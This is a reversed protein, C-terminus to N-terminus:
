GAREKGKCSSCTAYEANHPCLSYLYMDSARDSVYSNPAFHEGLGATAIYEAFGATSAYAQNCLSQCIVYEHDDDEAEAEQAAAQQGELTDLIEQDIEDGFSTNDYYGHAMLHNYATNAYKVTNTNNIGIGFPDKWVEYDSSGGEDDEVDADDVPSGIRDALPTSRMRKSARTDEIESDEAYEEEDSEVEEITASPLVSAVRELIRLAEPTGKVGIRDALRSAAGMTPHFTSPSAKHLPGARVSKLSYPPTTDEPELERPPSMDIRAMSALFHSSETAERAGQNGGRGRGRGRGRRRVRGHHNNDGRADSDNSSSPQQQRQQQQRHGGRQNRFQPTGRNRHVATVRNSAEQRPAGFEAQYANLARVKIDDPSIEDVSNTQALQAVFKMYPPLKSLLLMGHLFKPITVNLEELERVHDEMKDIAQVPNGKAPIRIHLFKLFVNYIGSTGVVAYDGQLVKWM